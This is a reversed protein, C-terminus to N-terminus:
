EDWRIRPKGWYRVVLYGGFVMVVLGGVVWPWGGLQTIIFGGVLAAVGMGSRTSFPFVRPLM